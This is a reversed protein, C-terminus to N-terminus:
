DPSFGQVVQPVQAAPRSRALVRELELGPSSCRRARRSDRPARAPHARSASIMELHRAHNRRRYLQAVVRLADLVRSRRLPMTATPPVRETVDTNAREVVRLPLAVSVPQNAHEFCMPGARGPSPAVEHVFGDPSANDRSAVVPCRVRCPTRPEVRPVTPCPAKAARNTDRFRAVLDGVLLRPPPFILVAPAAFGLGCIPAFAGSM